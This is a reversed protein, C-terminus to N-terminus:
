WVDNHLIYICGSIKCVYLKKKLIATFALARLPLKITLLIATDSSALDVHKAYTSKNALAASSMRMGSISTNTKSKLLSAEGAM